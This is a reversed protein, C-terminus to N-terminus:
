CSGAFVMVWYTMGGSEAVGVGFDRVNHRLINARHGSSNMWLETVTAAGLGAGRAINEAAICARYGARKARTMVNSGGRGSHSLTARRAMDCAHAQAAETLDQSTSLAGLGGNARQANVQAGVQAGLSAANQPTACQAAEATSSFAAVAGIVIVALIKFKLRV